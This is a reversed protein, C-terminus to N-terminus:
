HSTDVFAVHFQASASETVGEGQGTTDTWVLIEVLTSRVLVGGFDSTDYEMRLIPM